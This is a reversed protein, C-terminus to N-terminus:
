REEQKQLIAQISEEIEGTEHPSITGMWMNVKFTKKAELVKINGKAKEAMYGEPEATAPLVMGLADQDPTRCIWRVGKDLQAPKHRLYDATGDPHVQLSHAWGQDDALYDIFFVVEPDYAMGPSLINHVQPNSQLVQLFKVYDPGPHVHSPISIRVRVHEPTCFASYVLRSQDVPKFNVHALYMLEMPSNKLNTIDLSVSFLTSNAYLKVIPNALYNCNFAVTHQYSGGLGIYKGSEDEGQLIYALQFPANPLEGHL